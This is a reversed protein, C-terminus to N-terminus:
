KVIGQIIEHWSNLYLVFYQQCAPSIQQFTYGKEEM